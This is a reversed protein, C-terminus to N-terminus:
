RNRWAKFYRSFHAMLYGNLANSNSPMKIFGLAGMPTGLQKASQRGRAFNNVPMEPQIEAISGMMFEMM